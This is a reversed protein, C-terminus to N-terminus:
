AWLVPSMPDGAERRGVYCFPADQFWLGPLFISFSSIRIFLDTLGTRRSNMAILLIHPVVEKLFFRLYNLLLIIKAIFM